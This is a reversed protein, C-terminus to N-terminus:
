CEEEKPPEPIPMWHTVRADMWEPWMELIWGEPDYEALEVAGHLTINKAPKGYVIVLVYKDPEPLQESVPIWRPIDITPQQDISDLVANTDYVYENEGNELWEKRMADADIPRM